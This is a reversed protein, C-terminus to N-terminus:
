SCPQLSSETTSAVALTLWLSKFNWILLGQSNSPSVYFAVHVRLFRGTTPLVMSALFALYAGSANVGWHFYFRSLTPTSSSIGELVAKLLVLLLLSVVVPIHGFCSAMQGRISHATKKGSPIQDAIQVKKAPSWPLDKTILPTKEGASHQKTLMVERKKPPQSAAYAASRRDPEEFHFINLLFYCGWLAFM